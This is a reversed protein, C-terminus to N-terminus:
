APINLMDPNFRVVSSGDRVNILLPPSMTHSEIVKCHIDPLEGHQPTCRDAAWMGPMWLTKASVADLSNESEASHAMGESTNLLIVLLKPIGSMSM